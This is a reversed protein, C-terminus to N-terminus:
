EIIREYKKLVLFPDSLEPSISSLSEQEIEFELLYFGQELPEEALYDDYGIFDKLMDNLGAHEEDDPFYECMVFQSDMGVYAKLKKM